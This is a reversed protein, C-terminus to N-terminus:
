AFPLASEKPTLSGMMTRALLAPARKPAPAPQAPAALTRQRELFVQAYRNTLSLGDIALEEGMQDLWDHQASAWAELSLGARALVEDRPRGAEIEAQLEAYRDLSLSTTMARM